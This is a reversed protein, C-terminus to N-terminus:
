FDGRPKVNPFSIAMGHALCSHSPGLVNGVGGEAPLDPAPDPSPWAGRAGLQVWVQDVPVSCGPVSALAQDSRPALGRRLCLTCAAKGM